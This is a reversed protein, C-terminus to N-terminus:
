LLNTKIETASMAKPYVRIYNVIDNDKSVTNQSIQREIGITTPKKLLGYTYSMVSHLVDDKVYYLYIEGGVYTIAIQSKSRSMIGTPPVPPLSQHDDFIHVDAADNQYSTRYNDYTAQILQTSDEYNEFDRIYRDIITTSSPIAPNEMVVSAFTIGASNYLPSYSMLYNELVNEAGNLIQGDSVLLASVIGNNIIIDIHDSADGIRLLRYPSSDNTGKVISVIITGNDQPINPSSYIGNKVLIDTDLSIVPPMSEVFTYSTRYGGFVDTSSLGYKSIMLYRRLYELFRYPDNPINSIFDEYGLTTDETNTEVYLSYISKIFDETVSGLQTTNHPDILSDIHTTMTASITNSLIEIDSNKTTIAKNATILFPKPIIGRVNSMTFKSISNM